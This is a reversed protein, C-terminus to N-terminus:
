LGWVQHAHEIVTQWKGTEATPSPGLPDEWPNGTLAQTAALASVAGAEIDYGGELVLAIRGNCHNDAWESLLSVTRGYDNASVLLQGLPDRWHADFGASVLLMDPQFRALLPLLVIEITAAFALSGSYAPLPINAVTSEGPGTGIEELSGSGPYLPWQHLSFFFVDEREWFIDQTGNGHHLDIDIIAIRNASKEQLLYEAAVAVNNILCFGMARNSTAHHGPPRSLAFGRRNQREWVADVVAIAGGAANLALNWSEPTIYTDVDLRQGHQSAVKIMELYGPEHIGHLVEEPIAAPDLHQFQDWVGAATFTERIAEVRGPREPHGREAHAQHGQPYFLALDSM